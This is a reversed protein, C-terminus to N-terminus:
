EIAQKIELGSRPATYAYTAVPIPIVLGTQVVTRSNRPILVIKASNLDYGVACITGRVPMKANKSM